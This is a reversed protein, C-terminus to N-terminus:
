VFMPINITENMLKDKTLKNTYSYKKSLINTLILSIITPDIDIENKIELVYVNATTNFKYPRYFSYGVSGNRAVTIYKHNIGDYKYTDIYKLIGNNVSKYSILPYEGDKSNSAIVKGSILMTTLESVKYMKWEKITLNDIETIKKSFEIVCENNLLGINNKYIENFKNLEDLKMLAKIDINDISIDYYNFDDLYSLSKQTLKILPENVKVRISKKIAYGDNTYDVILVNDSQIPTEQSIVREYILIICEVSAIPQFIKNNCKIIKIIKIHKMLEKKFENTKKVNNNFNNRPMICAGIGGIKLHQVQYLLFKQEKNYQKWNTINENILSDICNVNFPPNIISKDYKDFVQNFCNNFYLTSYDLDNLIFNCKCLSYREEDYECGILKNTYKSCELLFSGTGTCFDLVTDDKTIHLEDVMIKVIDEPTLVVGLNGDDNKDHVCFETYFKNLVDKGYTKVDFSLKNILDYLYKNHLSKKIFIFQNTLVKDSYVNDILELIKDAIIYPQTQINYDKIFDPNNKLVLLLAAVFLTKKDKKLLIGNYYLYQNFYHIENENFTLSNNILKNIDNLTINLKNDNIDYVIYKFSKMSIGFGNILYTTYKDKTISSLNNYYNFLQIHAQKKTQNIKKNEIIILVENNIIDWGDPYKTDFLEKNFETHYNHGFVKTYETQMFYDTNKESMVQINTIMIYNM